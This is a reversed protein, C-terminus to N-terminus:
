TRQAYVLECAIGGSLIRSCNQLHECKACEALNLLKVVVVFVCETHNM